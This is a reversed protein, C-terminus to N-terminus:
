NGENNAVQWGEPGGLGGCGGGLGGDLYFMGDQNVGMGISPALLKKLFDEPRDEISMTVDGQLYGYLNELKKM